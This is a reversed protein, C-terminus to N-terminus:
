ALGTLVKTESGGSGREAGVLCELAELHRRGPLIREAKGGGGGLRGGPVGAAAGGVQLGRGAMGSAEAGSSSCRADVSSFSSDCRLSSIPFILTPPPPPPPAPTGPPAPQSPLAGGTRPLTGRALGLGSGRGLADHQKHNVALLPRQVQALALHPRAAARPQSSAGAPPLSGQRAARLAGDACELPQHQIGRRTAGGQGAGSLSGGRGRAGGAHLAAQGLPRRRLAVLWVDRQGDATRRPETIGSTCESLLWGPLAAWAGADNSDQPQDLRRHHPPWGQVRPVGERGERAAPGGPSLKTFNTIPLSPGCCTPRPQLLQLPVRALRVLDTASPWVCQKGATMGPGISGGLARARPRGRGGRLGEQRSLELDAAAHPQRHLQLWDQHPAAAAATPPPRWTAAVIGASGQRRVSCRRATGQM